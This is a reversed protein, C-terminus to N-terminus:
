RRVKESDWCKLSLAQLMQQRYLDEQDIENELQMYTCVFDTCYM